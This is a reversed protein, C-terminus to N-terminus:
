NPYDIEDDDGGGGDGDDNGDDDNKTHTHSLTVRYQGSKLKLLVQITSQATRSSLSRSSEAEQTRVNFTHAM